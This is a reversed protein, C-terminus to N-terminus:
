PFHNFKAKKGFDLSNYTLFNCIVTVSTASVDLCAYPVWRLLTIKHTATLHSGAWLFWHSSLTPGCRQWTLHISSGNRLKRLPWWRLFCFATCFLTSSHKLGKYSNLKIVIHDQLLSYRSSCTTPLTTAKLSPMTYTVSPMTLIMVQWTMQKKQLSTGPLHCFQM